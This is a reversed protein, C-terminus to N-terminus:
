RKIKYGGFLKPSALEKGYTDYFYVSVYSDKDIKGANKVITEITSSVTEAFREKEYDPSLYWSDSVTVYILQWSEIPEIKKIVGNSAKILEKMSDVFLKEIKEKVAAESPYAITVPEINGNFGGISTEQIQDGLMKEGKEGYIEKIHEPQPHDELNFRFMAIGSIYGPEWDPIEFTKEIFGNKIEVFDSVVEFNANLLSVEFIGGDPVNSAILMRVKGEQPQLSMSGEFKLVDNVQELEGEQQEKKPEEQKKEELQKAQEKQLSKKTTETSSTSSPLSLGTIFFALSVVLVIAAHKKPKKTILNIILMIFGVILGLLGLVGFLADM